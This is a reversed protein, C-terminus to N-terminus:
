DPMLEFTLRAEELGKVKATVTITITEEVAQLSVTAKGDQTTIRRKSLRGGTTSLFVEHSENVPKGNKAELTIVIAAKSKGDALLEPLGDGDTDKADTTLTLKYAGTSRVVGVPIGNEDLDFVWSDPDLSYKISDEVQVFGLKSIDRDPYLEELTPERWVGTDFVQTATGIFANSGKEYIFIM